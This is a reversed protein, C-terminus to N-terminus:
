TETDIKQPTAIPPATVGQDEGLVPRCELTALVLLILLVSGKLVFKM